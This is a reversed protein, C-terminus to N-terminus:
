LYPNEEECIPCIKWNNATLGCPAEDTKFSWGGAEPFSERGCFFVEEGAARSWFHIHKCWKPKNGSLDQKILQNITM